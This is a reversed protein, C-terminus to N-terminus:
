DAYKDTAQEETNASLNTNAHNFLPKLDYELFSIAKTDYDFGGFYFRHGKLRYLNVSSYLGEGGWSGCSLSYLSQRGVLRTKAKVTREDDLLAILCPHKDGISFAFFLHMGHYKGLYDYKRGDIDIGTDSSIDNRDYSDDHFPDWYRIKRGDWVAGHGNWAPPFFECSHMNKRYEAIFHGSYERRLAEKSSDHVYLVLSEDFFQGHTISDTEKLPLDHHRVEGTGDKSLITLRNLGEEVYLISDGMLAMIAHDHDGTTDNSIVIDYEKQQGNYCVLRIPRGGAIYLRGKGDTDFGKIKPSYKPDNSNPFSPADSNFTYTHMPLLSDPLGGTESVGASVRDEVQTLSLTDANKERIKKQGKTRVEEQTASQVTAKRGMQTCGSLLLVVALLYLNYHKM